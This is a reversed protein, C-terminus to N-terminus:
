LPGDAPQREVGARTVSKDHAASQGATVSPLATPGRPKRDYQDALDLLRKKTFPDAKEAIARVTMAHQKRFEETM